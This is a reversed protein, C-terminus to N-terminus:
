GTILYDIYKGKVPKDKDLRRRVAWPSIQLHEALEKISGFEKGGWVLPINNRAGGHTNM